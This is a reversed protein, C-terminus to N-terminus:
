VNKWAEEHSILRKSSQLAENIWYQDENKEMWNETMKRVVDSLSRNEKQAIIELIERDEESFTVHIRKDKKM